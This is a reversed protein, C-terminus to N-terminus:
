VTASSPLGMLPPPWRASLALLATGASRKSALLAGPPPDFKANTSSSADDDVASTINYEDKHVAQLHTEFHRVAIGNAEFAAEIMAGIHGYHMGGPLKRKM